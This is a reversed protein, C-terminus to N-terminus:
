HLPIPDVVGVAVVAGLVGAIREGTQSVFTAPIRRGAVYTKPRAVSSDLVADLANGISWM